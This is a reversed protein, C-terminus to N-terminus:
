YPIGLTEKPIAKGIKKNFIYKGNFKLLQALLIYDCMDINNAESDDDCVITEVDTECFSKKDAISYTLKYHQKSSFDNRNEVDDFIFIIFGM